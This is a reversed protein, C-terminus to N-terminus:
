EFTFAQFQGDSVIAVRRIGRFLELRGNPLFFVSGRADCSGSERVGVFHLEFKRTNRTIEHIAPWDEICPASFGIEAAVKGELWADM